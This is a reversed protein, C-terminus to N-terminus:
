GMNSGIGNPRSWRMYHMRTICIPIKVVSKIHMIHLNVCTELRCHFICSSQADHKELSRVWKMWLKTRMYRRVSVTPMTAVVKNHKFGAHVCPAGARFWTAGADIKSGMRGSGVEMTWRAVSAWTDSAASGVGPTTLRYIPSSVFHM